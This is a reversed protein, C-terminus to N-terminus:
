TLLPITEQKRRQLQQEITAAGRAWAQRSLQPLFARLAATLRAYNCSLWGTSFSLAETFAAAIGAMTASTPSISMTLAVQIKTVFDADAVSRFSGVRNGRSVGTQLHCEGHGLPLDFQEDSL